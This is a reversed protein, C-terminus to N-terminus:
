FRRYDTVGKLVAIQAFVDGDLSEDAVPASDAPVSNEAAAKLMDKRTQPAAVPATKVKTLEAVAKTLADVTAKLTKIESSKESNSDSDPESGADPQDDPKKDDEAMKVKGKDDDKKPKKKPKKKKDDEVYEGPNDKDKNLGFSKAVTIFSTRNSGIPTLSGELLEAKTWELIDEDGSKTMRSAEPLAGISLGISAGEDLMGQIIASNPNSKFFRPEYLLAARGDKEILQPNIWEGTMSLTTYKHDMLMPIKQGSSAWSRLLEVSMRENDRDISNDSLIARYKNTEFDKTIPMWLMRKEISPNPTNTNFLPDM